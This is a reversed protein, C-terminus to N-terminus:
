THQSCIITPCSKESLSPFTKSLYSYKLQSRVSSCLNMLNENLEMIDRILTHTSLQKLQIQSEAVRHVAAGWAGRDM